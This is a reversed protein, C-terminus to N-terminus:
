TFSIESELNYPHFASLSPSDLLPTLIKKTGTRYLALSTKTAELLSSKSCNSYLNLSHPKSLNKRYLKARFHHKKV